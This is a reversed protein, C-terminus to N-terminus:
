NYTVEDFSYIKKSIIQSNEQIYWLLICLEQQYNVLQYNVLYIRTCVYDIYSEEQFIYCFDLRWMM